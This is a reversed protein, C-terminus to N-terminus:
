AKGAKIEGAGKKEGDVSRADGPINRKRRTPDDHTEWNESTTNHVIRLGGAPMPTSQSYAPGRTRTGLKALPRCSGDRASAHDPVLMARRTGSLLTLRLVSRAIVKGAGLGGQESGVRESGQLGCPMVTM